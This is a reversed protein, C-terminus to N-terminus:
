VEDSFVYELLAKVAGFCIAIFLVFFIAKM